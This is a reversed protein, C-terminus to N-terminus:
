CNAPFMRTSSFPRNDYSGVQPIMRVDYGFFVQYEEDAIEM